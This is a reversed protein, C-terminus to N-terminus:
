RALNPLTGLQLRDFEVNIVEMTRTNVSLRKVAANMGAAGTPLTQNMTASRGPEGEILFVDKAATYSARDANGSFLGKENRTHYVVGGIAEMEWPNEVYGRPQTQDIALRLRDCDLTSEGLRLGQIAEVDIMDDWAKVPRSAIRVGRVFDLSKAALNVELSEKFVLHVGVLSPDTPKFGGSTVAPSIGSTGTQMWARYWGPGSGSLQSNAPRLMMEPLTLVHRGTRIGTSTLQNITVVLPHTQSSTVSVHDIEASRMSEIQRMQVQGSLVVQLQDGVMDIDWVNQEDGVMVAGRIDVGDTLVVRSGDFLMQGRWRCRPPAIWKMNQPPSIAQSSRPTASPGVSPGSDGIPSLIPSTQQGTPAVRPLMQTPVQFEGADKIWVLNDALRVQILPGIFFGDGIALRAPSDIGSGIQLIEDGATDRVQLRDGTLIAPITGGPTELTHRLAVNGDVTLDSATLETGSLRLKANITDGHITPRPGAIPTANAVPVAVVGGSTGDGPTPQRVWQRMPHAAVQTEDAQGDEGQGRGGQGRGGPTPANEDFDFYVRLLRTAVNVSPSLMNVHGTAQFRRPRTARLWEGGVLENDGAQLEMMASDCTFEGGDNMLAWVNGDVRITFQGNEDPQELRIGDAWRLRKIPMEGPGGFEVLGSGMADFAGIKKPDTPNIQYTFNKFRWTHGSYSIRAGAVGGMQFLGSRADFKITEAAVEANFSPMLMRAPKGEAIVSLLFDSIQEGGAQGTEGGGGSLKDGVGGNTEGGEEALFEALPDDGAIQPRSNLLDAFQLKLFDCEFVDTAEATRHELRVQDVLSLENSAFQFVVRGACRLKAVAGSQPLRTTAPRTAEPQTAAAGGAANAASSRWLGGEPLPVTLENLYILEMRNLISMAGEGGPVIRGVPALHLTLDRGSLEIGGMRVVIPQTTWIKRFDIGFDSSVIELHGEPPARGGSSSEGLPIAKGVSRIRVQGIMRGREIPPAGGSMVDLSEAFKIEAGEPADLILPSESGTGLVISLPWLKWQDDGIQEWNEFLLAGDRTQLRKCHGRQWADEPYLAALSENKRLGPMQAFEIPEVPDPTLWVVFTSQYIVCLSGLVILAATYQKFSQLM